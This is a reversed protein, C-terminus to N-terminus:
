VGEVYWGEDGHYIGKAATLSLLNSKIKPVYLVNSIYTKKGDRRQIMAKGIGEATVVSHDDFKIKSKALEDLTTFWNKKDTMHNSCGTDLYWFDGSEDNNKVTAMLLYEDDDDSGENQALRTEEDKSSFIKKSKYEAAYHGYNKEKKKNKNWQGSPKKSSQAQLVHDDNKELGREKLRHEHAGLSSQFEEIEEGCSKMQNILTLIKTFYDTITENEEMQLLEYKRRMAQLKVKKMKAAGEYSKDLNDWAEKTTKASSIREFNAGDICQYILFLAKCDKKKSERYSTWQAENANEM